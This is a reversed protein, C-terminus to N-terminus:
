SGAMPLTVPPKGSNYKGDRALLKEELMEADEKLRKLEAEALRRVPGCGIEYALKKTIWLYWGPRLLLDSDAVGTPDIPAHYTQLRVRLLLGADENEQTPAPYAKLAPIKDKTIVVRCPQGTLTLNEDVAESEFLMELPDPEGNEAVLSVSFVHQAGAEDVYDALDYDGIGAELPIDIIRYFGAMPRIGSQTNLIMELWELTKRLEGADAQSQSAPFAGITSLANEAVKKATQYTPM